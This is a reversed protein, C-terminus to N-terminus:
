TFECGPSQTGRHNPRGGFLLFASLAGARRGVTPRGRWVSRPRGPDGRRRSVVPEPLGALRAVHVGYSRDAAGPQIRHLFVVDDGQQSVVVNYNVIHPLREALDTLEHYHTAFLTRARLGPHNHVYELVSWAIALGDYTSTGRGIEDLILLSRSTAHHLINATEVMEVMFTSQGRAILDSAGIRTFIRDALGVHASEAPVYSGIQALLVILATQRIFTSKGAMNPGTLVMIAQEPSLHSDNPVFMEGGPLSKEVVPHRGARIDIVLDDAIEPCVYRNQEAVEALVSAVDLEALTRATALLRTSMEGGQKVVQSYLQGELDLLRQEANLVLAEYEKLEPTVYREANALTQKRVYNDPVLPSNAQTVEIYYGFVKNYGVKLSKIGTRLREAGELNAIWVRADRNALHIGDLEPSFGPRIM